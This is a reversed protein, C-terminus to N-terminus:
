VSWQRRILTSLLRRMMTLSIYKIRVTKHPFSVEIMRTKKEQLEIIRSEISDQIVM